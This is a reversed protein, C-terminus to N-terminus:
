MEGTFHRPLTSPRGGDAGGDLPQAYGGAFHRPLTSPRALDQVLHPARPAYGGAFHRPLTSPVLGRRSRLWPARTDGPSIGPYRQLIRSWCISASSDTIEGPSIGPYRQLTGCIIIMSDFISMEGPSIGPYRQLFRMDGRHVQDLGYIGRRFAPTVNFTAESSYTSHAPIITTPWFTATLLMLRGGDQGHPPHQLASM